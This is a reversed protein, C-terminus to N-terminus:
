RFIPFFSPLGLDPSTADYSSSPLDVPVIQLVNDPTSEAGGASIMIRADPEGVELAVRKSSTLSAHMAMVGDSRPPSSGPNYSASGVLAPDSGAVGELAPYSSAGGEPAPNEAVVVELASPDETVEMPTPCDQGVEQCRLSGELTSSARSVVRSVELGVDLIESCVDMMDGATPESLMNKPVVDELAQDFDTISLEQHIVLASLAPTPIDSDGRSGIYRRSNKHILPVEEEEEEDEDFIRVIAPARDCGNPDAEVRDCGNPEAEPCDCGNPDAEVLDCGNPDAEVHDCGNPDAEVHVGGNPDVETLVEAPVEECVSASTSADQDLCSLRWLRRKKKEEVPV